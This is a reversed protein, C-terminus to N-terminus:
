KGHSGAARALIPTVFDDWVKSSRFWHGEYDRGRYITAWNLEAFEGGKGPLYVFGEHRSPNYKYYVVYTLSPETTTCANGECRTYFSVKYQLLGMPVQVVGNSWDIIFGRTAEVGDVSSGPGAWVNFQRIAPDTIEILAAKEPTLVIKVTAGKALLLSPTVLVALVAAAFFSKMCCGSVKIVDDSSYSRLM